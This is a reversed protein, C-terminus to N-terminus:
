VYLTHVKHKISFIAMFMFMFRISGIYDMGTFCIDLGANRRPTNIYIAFTGRVLCAVGLM